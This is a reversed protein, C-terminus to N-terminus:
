KKSKMECDEDSKTLHLRGCKIHGSEAVNKTAAVNKQPLWMKHSWKQTAPSHRRQLLVTAAVNALTTLTLVWHM